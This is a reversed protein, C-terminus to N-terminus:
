ETCWPYAPLQTSGQIGTSGPQVYGVIHNGHGIQCWLEGSTWHQPNASHNPPAARYHALHLQNGAAGATLVMTRKSSSAGANILLYFYGQTPNEDKMPIVSWHQYFSTGAVACPAMVVAPADSSRTGEDVDLCLDRRTRLKITFYRDSGLHRYEFAIFRYPFWTSNTCADVTVPVVTGEPEQHSARLCLGTSRFNQSSNALTKTEEYFTERASASALLLPILASVGAAVTRRRSRRHTNAGAAEPSATM